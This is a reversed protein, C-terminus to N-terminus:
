LNASLKEYLSDAVGLGGSRAMEDATQEMAYSLASGSHGEAGELLSKMGEKLLTQLFLGEMQNCATRLEQQQRSPAAPESSALPTITM